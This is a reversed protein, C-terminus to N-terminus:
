PQLPSSAGHVTTTVALRLPLMLVLAGPRRLFELGRHVPPPVPSHTQMCEAAVAAKRGEMRFQIRGPYSTGGMIKRFKTLEIQEIRAIARSSSPIGHRDPDPRPEKGRFPIGRKGKGGSNWVGTGGMCRTSRCCSFSTNFTHADVRLRCAHMCVSRVSRM